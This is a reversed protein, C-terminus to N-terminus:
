VKKLNEFETFGFGGNIEDDEAIVRPSVVQWDVEDGDVGMIEITVGKIPVDPADEHGAPTYDGKWKDGVKYTSLVKAM